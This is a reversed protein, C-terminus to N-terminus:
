PAGDTSTVDDETAVTPGAWRRNTNMGPLLVSDFKLYV